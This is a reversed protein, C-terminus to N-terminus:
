LGEGAVSLQQARAKYILPEGESKVEPKNKIKEPKWFAKNVRTATFTQSNLFSRVQTREKNQSPRESDDQAHFQM